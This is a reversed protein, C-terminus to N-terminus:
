KRGKPKPRFDEKDVFVLTELEVVGRIAELGTIKGNRWQLLIEYQKDTRREQAKKAIEKALKENKTDSM